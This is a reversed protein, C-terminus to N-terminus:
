RCMPGADNQHDDNEVDILEFVPTSSDFRFRGVHWLNGCITMDRELVVPPQDRLQYTLTVTTPPASERSYHHYQVYLAYVPTPDAVASVSVEEPGFGDIDDRDLFPDDGAYGLQGWDPNKQGFYCDDEEAFLEGGDRVLHLDFDSWPTNWELVARIDTTGPLPPDVTAAVNVRTITGHAAVLEVSATHRAALGQGEFRLDFSVMDGVIGAPPNPITFLNSSGSLFRTESLTYPGGGVTCEVGLVAITGRPVGGFELPGNCSLTGPVVSDGAVQLIATEGTDFSIEPSADSEDALTPRYHIEIDLSDGPALVVSPLVLAGGGLATASFPPNLGKISKLSGDTDGGNTITLVQHVDRGVETTPFQIREPQLVPAAPPILEAGALLPLEIQFESFVLIMSTDYRRPEEPFYFITITTRQARTLLAGRLPTNEPLRAAFATEPPDFVVDLVRLDEASTNTLETTLEHPLGVTRVGFDVEAPNFFGTSPLRRIQDGECATLALAALVLTRIFPLGNM